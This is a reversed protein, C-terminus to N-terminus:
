GGLGVVGVFGQFGGCGGVGHFRAGEAGCRWVLVATM